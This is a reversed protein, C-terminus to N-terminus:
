VQYGQQLGLIQQQLEAVRAELAQLRGDPSEDAPLLVSPPSIDQDGVTQAPFPSQAQGILLAELEPITPAVGGGLQRVLADIWDSWPRTIKGRSDVLNVRPPPQLFNSM